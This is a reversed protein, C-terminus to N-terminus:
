RVSRRQWAEVPTPLIIGPAIVLANMALGVTTCGSNSLNSIAKSSKKSKLKGAAQKVYVQLCGVKGHRLKGNSKRWFVAFTDSSDVYAEGTIIKEEDLKM